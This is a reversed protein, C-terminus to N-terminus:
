KKEGKGSEQTRCCAKEGRGCISIVVVADPALSTVDVVAEVLLMLPSFSLGGDVWAATLVTGFVM